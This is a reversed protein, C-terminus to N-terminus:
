YEWIVKGDKEKDNDVHIFNSAIGIRDFGAYMLAQVIIFRKRSDTCSIDVALGKMHSSTKSGGVKANYDKCRYKSNLKFPIGAKHRAVNLQFIFEEDTIKRGCGCPCTLEKENFYNKM